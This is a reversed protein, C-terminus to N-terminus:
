PRPEEPKRDLEPAEITRTDAERAAEARLLAREAARRKARDIAIVCALIGAAGLLLVRFLQLFPLARAKRM